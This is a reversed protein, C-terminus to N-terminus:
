SEALAAREIVPHWDDSVPLGYIEQLVRAIGSANLMQVDPEHGPRRITLRNNALGYRAEPTTRATVLSRRFPSDPHTATFWNALEYDSRYHPEGSLEYVPLWRGDREIQLLLSPGYPFIRFREHQTAQPETTDMRLPTTLVCGGFGVDALWPTGDVTVKLAMHTRPPIPAGAPANWRVRASLGEVQFGLTELVRKFLDNQEFCYGGRGGDILKADIAEPSLDVGRDLLVDLAEFVIADPHCEHLAQLTELTPARPGLYGIRASYADLDVLRAGPARLADAIQAAAVPAYTDLLRVAPNQAAFSRKLTSRLANPIGGGLAILDFGTADFATAAKDPETTGTVTMGLAGLEEMVTELVLPSRGIVLVRAATESDTIEVTASM